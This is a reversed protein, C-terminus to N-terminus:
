LISKIKAYAAKADGVALAEFSTIKAKLQSAKHVRGLGFGLALVALIGVVHIM